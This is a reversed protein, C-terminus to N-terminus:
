AYSASRPPCTDFLILSLETVVPLGDFVDTNGLAWASILVTRIAARIRISDSTQVFLSAPCGPSPRAVLFPPYVNFHPNSSPSTLASSTSDILQIPPARPLAGGILPCFYLTHSRSQSRYLPHRSAYPALPPYRSATLLPDRMLTHGPSGSAPLAHVLTLAHTPQALPPLSADSASVSRSTRSRYSYSNLACTRARTRYFCRAHAPCRSPLLPLPSSQMSRVGLALASPPPKVSPRHHPLFSLVQTFSRPIPLSLDLLASPVTLISPPGRPLSRTTHIHCMTGTKIALTTGFSTGREVREYGDWSTAVVLECQFAVWFYCWDEKQGEPERELSPLAELDARVNQPFFFCGRGVTQCPQMAVQHLKRKEGAM